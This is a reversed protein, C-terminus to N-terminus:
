AGDIWFNYKLKGFGLSSAKYGKIHDYSRADLFRLGEPRRQEGKGATKLGHRPISSIAEALGYVLM